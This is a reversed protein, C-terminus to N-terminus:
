SGDETWTLGEGGYGDGGYVERLTVGVVSYWSFWSPDAGIGTYGLEGACDGPSSGCGNSLTGVWPLLWYRVATGILVSDRRGAGTSQGTHLLLAIVFVTLSVPFKM